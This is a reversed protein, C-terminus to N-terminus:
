DRVSNASATTSTETKKETSGFVESKRKNGLAVDNPKPANAKCSTMSDSGAFAATTNVLLAFIVLQKM